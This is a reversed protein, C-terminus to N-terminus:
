APHRSRSRHLIAFYVISTFLGLLWVPLRVIGFFLLQAKWDREYGVSDPANILGSVYFFAHAAVGISWLSTSVVLVKINRRSLM